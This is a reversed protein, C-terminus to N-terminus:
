TLSTYCQVCTFLVDQTPHPSPCFTGEASATPIWLMFSQSCQWPRCLGAMRAKTRLLAELDLALSAPLCHHHSPSIAHACKATPVLKLPGNCVYAYRQPGPFAALAPALQSSVPLQPTPGQSNAHERTKGTEVETAHGATSQLHM